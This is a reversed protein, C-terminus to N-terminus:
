RSAEDLRRAAEMLLATTSMGIRDDALVEDSDFVFAGEPWSLVTAIADIDRPGGQPLIEAAVLRGDVLTAQCLRKDRTLRLHGTARESELLTLISALGFHELRGSMDSAPLLRSRDEADARRALLNRIRLTLEEAHFPKTLYDEAGLELGRLRAREDSLETLFVVPIRATEKRARLARLISWGDLRPLVVDSVVVEPRLQLARQLGESGTHAVEVSHGARTLAETVLRAVARDDEIVLIKAVPHVM